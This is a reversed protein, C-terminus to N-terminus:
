RSLHTILHLEEESANKRSVLVELLLSNFGDKCAEVHYSGDRLHAFAFRGKFDTTTEFVKGNTKALIKAGPLPHEDGGTYQVFVTGKLDALSRKGLNYTESAPPCTVNRISGSSSCSLLYLSFLSFVLVKVKNIKKM